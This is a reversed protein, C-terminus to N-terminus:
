QGLARFFRQRDIPDFPLEFDLRGDFGANNTEVSSWNLLNTSTQLIYDRGPSGTMTLALTGDFALTPPRLSAPATAPPTPNPEFATLVVSTPTYSVVLSGYGDITAIRQGNTANGFQGTISGAQVIPFSDGPAPRFGDVLNIALTGGLSASSSVLLQDFQNTGTGFLEIALVTSNTLEMAGIISLVGPSAGVIMTNSFRLVSARLVGTAQVQGHFTMTGDSRIEGTVDVKGNLTADGKVLIVAPDLCEIDGASYLEGNVTLLSNGSVKLKSPGFTDLNGLTSYNTDTLIFQGGDIMKLKLAPINGAIIEVQAAYGITNIDAPFVLTCNRGVRWAGDELTGASLNNVRGLLQVVTAPNAAGLRGVTLKGPLNLGGALSSNKFEAEINVSGAQNLEIAMESDLNNIFIATNSNTTIETPRVIRWTGTNLVMGNLEFGGRQEVADVNIFEGDLQRPHDVSEDIDFQGSNLFYRSGSSPQGVAIRGGKWVFRQLNECSALDGRLEGRNFHASDDGMEFRLKAFPFINMEIDKDVTGLELKAEGQFVTEEGRFNFLGALEFVTNFLATNTHYGLFDGGGLLSLRGAVVDIGWPPIRLFAEFAHFPPYITFDGAGEKRLLGNNQFPSAGASNTITGTRVVFRGKSRVVGNSVILTGGNDFVTNSEIILATNLRATTGNTLFLNTVLLRGTGDVTGTIWDFNNTIAADANVTLSGNPAEMRMDSLSSVRNLTLHEKLRLLGNSMTLSGIPTPRQDLVITENPFANIFVSATGPEADGPPQERPNKEFSEWSTFPSTANTTHWNPGLLGTWYFDHAAEAGTTIIHTGISFVLAGDDTLGSASGGGSGGQFSINGVFGIANVTINSGSAVITTGGRAVNTWGDGPNFFWLDTGPNKQNVSGTSGYLEVVQGLANISSTLLAYGALPPYPKAPLISFSPTENTSAPLRWFGFNTGTSDFGSVYNSRSIFTGGGVLFPVQALLSLNTAPGAFLASQFVPNSNNDALRALVAVDGQANGSASMFGIKRNPIGPAPDGQSLVPAIVGFGNVFFLRNTGDSTNGQLLLRGDTTLAIPAGYNTLTLGSGFAGAPLGAYSVAGLEKTDTNYTWNTGQLGYAIFNATQLPRSPSFNMRQVLELTAVPGTKPDGWWVGGAPFPATTGGSFAVPGLESINQLGYANFNSGGMGTAGLRQLLLTALPTGQVGGWIGTDIGKLVGNADSQQVAAQFAYRGGSAAVPPGFQWDPVVNPPTFVFVGDPLSLGAGSGPAIQNTRVLVTLTLEAGAASVLAFCHALILVPWM